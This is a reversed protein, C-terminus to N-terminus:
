VLVEAAKTMSGGADGTNITGAPEFLLIATEEDAATCHEVRRPVVFLEGPELVVDAGRLRITLRGSVVLILEDTDEHTHWVFEGKLKAVKVEYDNLVAVTKQSWLDSFRSLRDALNVPVVSESM